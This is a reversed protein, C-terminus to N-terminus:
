PIGVLRGRQKAPEARFHCASTWAPEARQRFALALDQAEEPLPKGVRRDGFTEEEAAAGDLMMHGVNQALQTQATPGLGGSVVCLATGRAIVARAERQIEAPADRVSTRQMLELGLPHLAEALRLTNSDAVRGDLLEDGITLIEIRM